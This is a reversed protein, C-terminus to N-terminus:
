FDDEKRTQFINFNGEPQRGSVHGPGYDFRWKVWSHSYEGQDRKTPSM